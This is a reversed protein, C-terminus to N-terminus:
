KIQNIMKIVTYINQNKRVKANTDEGVRFKELEDIIM